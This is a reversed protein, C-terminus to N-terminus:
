NLKIKIVFSLVGLFYNCIQNKNPLASAVFQWHIIRMIQKLQCYYIKGNKRVTLGRSFPTGEPHVPEDM